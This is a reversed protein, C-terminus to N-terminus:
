LKKLLEVLRIEPYLGQKFHNQSHKIVVDPFALYKGVKKGCMKEEVIYGETKCCVKVSIGNGSAGSM